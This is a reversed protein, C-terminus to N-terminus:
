VVATAVLLSAALAIELAAGLVDGTIGGLRTTCRRLLVAAGLVAGAVVAPATWWSGDAAAVVAAAAGALVLLAVITAPRAVSGAVTAGLGEPRASPVGRTCAVTLASRSALLSVAALTTGVTTTLLSAACTIQLALVLLLTAAGAPGVDGTRMVALARERDYSAALGDATDALGDLHLARTGAALVMVVLVAQVTSPVDLLRGLAICAAAPLLLLLATLPALLMAIGATSRTISRPAPVRM